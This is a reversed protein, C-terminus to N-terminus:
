NAWFHGLNSSFRLSIGDTQIHKYVMIRGNYTHYIILKYIECILLLFPDCVGCLHGNYITRHDYEDVAQKHEKYEKNRLFSNNWLVNKAERNNKKLFIALQMPQMGRPLLQKTTLAEIIGNWFCTM